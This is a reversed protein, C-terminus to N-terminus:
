VPLLHGTKLWIVTNARTYVLLDSMPPNRLWTGSPYRSDEDYLEGEIIYIEQGGVHFHPQLAEDAPLRVLAVHENQYHHLPLIQLRGAGPLWASSETDIRVSSSDGQQFQHLKVFLICGLKSFPAHRFGLPNRLYTGAPYDGTQDSFIGEVVLIEEGKPHDHASFTSGPDYRVISTAHGREADERALPKRWVGAKPSAAWELPQTDLTVRKSFDMNLM